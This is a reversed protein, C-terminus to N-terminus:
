FMEGLVLTESSAGGSLALSLFLCLLACHGKKEEELVRCVMLTPSLTVEDSEQSTVRLM